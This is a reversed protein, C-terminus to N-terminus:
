SAQWVRVDDAVRAIREGNPSWALAGVISRHGRYTFVRRGTTADWVQVTADWSASALRKGDPSWALAWVASPHGYLNFTLTGTVADRIQM